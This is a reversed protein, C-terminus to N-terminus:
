RAHSKSWKGVALPLVMGFLVCAFLLGGSRHMYFFLVAIGFLTALGFWASAPASSRAAPLSRGCRRCFRAGGPNGAACGDHVCLQKTRRQM